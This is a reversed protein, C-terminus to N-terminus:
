RPPPMSVLPLMSDKSSTVSSLLPSPLAFVSLLFVRKIDVVVHKFAFYLVSYHNWRQWKARKEAGDESSSHTGRSSHKPIGRKLESSLRLTHRFIAECLSQLPSLYLCPPPTAGPTKLVRNLGKKFTSFATIMTVAKQKGWGAPAAGSM